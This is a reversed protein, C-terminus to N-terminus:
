VLRLIKLSKAIRHRDKDQSHFVDGLISLFGDIVVAKICKERVYDFVLSQLTNSHLRGMTGAWM